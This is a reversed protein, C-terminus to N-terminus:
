PIGQLHLHKPTAEKRYDSSPAFLADDLKKNVVSKAEVRMKEKGAKDHVVVKLPFAKAKTLEAAWAPEEGGGKAEGYLDFYPIGKAACVDLQDQGETIEVDECAMGAVTETKGTTKLQAPAPERGASTPDVEVYRKKTDLLEYAKHQDLDAITHVAAAASSTTAKEDYRVKDGKIDYTVNLPTAESAQRVELQIEGEFPTPTASALASTLHTLIEPTSKELSKKTQTQTAEHHCAITAAAICVAVAASPHLKM